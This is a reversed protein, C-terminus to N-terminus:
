LIGLGFEVKGSVDANRFGAREFREGFFVRIMGLYSVWLLEIMKLNYVSICPKNM